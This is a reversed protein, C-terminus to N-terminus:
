KELVKLYKEAQDGSIIGLFCLVDLAGYVERVRNLALEVNIDKSVHFTFEANKIYKDIRPLIDTSVEIKNVDSM